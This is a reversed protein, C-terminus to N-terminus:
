TELLSLFALGETYVEFSVISHRFEKVAVTRFIKM